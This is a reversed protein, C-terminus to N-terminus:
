LLLAASSWAEADTFEGVAPDGSRAFAVAGANGNTIHRARSVAAAAATLAEMAEQAVFGEKTEMFPLVVYYTIKSM